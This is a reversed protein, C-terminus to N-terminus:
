NVACKRLIVEYNKQKVNCYLFIISRFSDTDVASLQTYFITCFMIQSLIFCAWTVIQPERKTKWPSPYKGLSLGLRLVENTVLQVLSHSFFLFLFEFAYLVM